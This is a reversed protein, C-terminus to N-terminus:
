LFLCCELYLTHLSDSVSERLRIPLVDFMLVLNFSKFYLRQSVRPSSTPTSPHRPSMCFGFRVSPSVSGFLTSILRLMSRANM